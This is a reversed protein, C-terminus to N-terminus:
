VPSTYEKESSYWLLKVPVLLDLKTIVGNQSSQTGPQARLPRESSLLMSEGVLFGLPM